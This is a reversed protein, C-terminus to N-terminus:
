VEKEVIESISLTVVYQETINGNEDYLPMKLKNRRADIFEKAEDATDFRYEEDGDWGVPGYGRVEERCTVCFVKKLPKGDDYFPKGTVCYM